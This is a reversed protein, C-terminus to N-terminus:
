YVMWKQIQSGFSVWDTGIETIKPGNSRCFLSTLWVLTLLSDQLPPLDSPLGAHSIAPRQPMPCPLFNSLILHHRVTITPETLHSECLAINSHNQNSRWMCHSSSISFDISIMHLTALNDRWDFIILGVCCNEPLPIEASRSAWHSPRMGVYYERYSCSFKIM